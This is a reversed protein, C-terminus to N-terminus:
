GQHHEHSNSRSMLPYLSGVHIDIRNQVCSKPIRGRALIEADRLVRVLTEVELTLNPPRPTGESPPPQPAHQRLFEGMSRSNVVGLLFDPLGDHQYPPGPSTPGPLTQAVEKIPDLLVLGSPLPEHIEIEYVYAPNEPTPLHTSNLVAYHWAVAYSRTLSIFPSNGTGRSIHQMLQATTPTTDPVRATFGTELPDRLHWYSNIGAGRYFIPM